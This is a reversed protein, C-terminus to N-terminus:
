RLHRVRSLNDMKQLASDKCAVAAGRGGRKRKPRQSTWSFRVQRTKTHWQTHQMRFCTTLLEMEPHGSSLAM